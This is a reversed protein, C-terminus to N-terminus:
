RASEWDDEAIPEAPDVYHVPTGRLPYFNPAAATVQEAVIVVELTEGATFPLDILTLTGDQTLTTKVRYTHMM